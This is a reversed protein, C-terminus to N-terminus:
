GSWCLAPQVPPPQELNVLRKGIRRIVEVRDDVCSRHKGVKIRWVETIPVYDLGRVLDLLSPVGKFDVETMWDAVAQSQRGSIGLLM